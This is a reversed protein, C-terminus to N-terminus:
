PHFLIDSFPEQGYFQIARYQCTCSKLAFSIYAILFFAKIQWRIDDGKLFHITSSVQNRKTIIIM